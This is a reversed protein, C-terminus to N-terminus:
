TSVLYVHFFLRLVGISALLSENLLKALWITIFLDEGPPYPAEVWTYLNRGNIEMEEQATSRPAASGINPEM